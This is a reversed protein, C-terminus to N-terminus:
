RLHRLLTSYPARQACRLDAQTARTLRAVTPGRVQWERVRWGRRWEGCIRGCDPFFFSLPPPPSFRPPALSVVLFLAATVRPQFAFQAPFLFLLHRPLDANRFVCVKTLEVEEVGNATAVGGGHRVAGGPAEGAEGEGDELSSSSSTGLLEHRAARAEAATQRLAAQAARDQLAQM